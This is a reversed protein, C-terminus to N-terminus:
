FVMIENRKKPGTINGHSNNIQFLVIVLGHLEIINISTVVYIVWFMSIYHRHFLQIVYICTDLHTM